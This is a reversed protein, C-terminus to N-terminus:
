LSSRPALHCGDHEFDAETGGGGSAASNQKTFQPAGKSKMMKSWRSTQVVILLTQCVINRCGDTLKGFFMCSARVHLTAM